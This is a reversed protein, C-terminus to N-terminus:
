PRPEGEGVMSRLLKVLDQVTRVAAFEEDGIEIAFREELELALSVTELSSLGLDRRLDTEPGLPTADRGPEELARLRAIVEEYIADSM